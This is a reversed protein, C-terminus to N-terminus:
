AAFRYDREIQEGLARNERLFKLIFEHLGFDFISDIDRGRLSGALAEAMDHSPMRTGYDRTLYNLNDVLKDVCFALSRPFRPDLILFQAIGRAHMRGANLWRYASDASVSRLVNDWQVNDLSSGVLSLSPLLVYYKVDLIRAMNDARELFTGLRMFNYIDNRLMTGALAGRVLASHRRIAALAAMWDREKLPRAMLTTIDMWCDNIAEWVERTLSTRVMRANSRAGEIMALVSGPNRKDRLLFNVVSAGNYEDHVSEYAAQLGVTQIVSKWEGSSEHASRTLAIRQGADILRATNEARELYRFTWVIGNATRGLM